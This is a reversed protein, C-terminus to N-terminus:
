AALDLPSGWLHPKLFAIGGTTNKMTPDEAFDADVYCRLILDGNFAPVIIGKDQTAALYRVIMKLATAHSKKPAYTFRAVQSVAFTIDPRTNGSLYLLMGVISRYNFKDNMPPGDLDKGLCTKLSPVKNPNCSEMGTAKIIKKILGSQTMHIAGNPLPNFSMGLYDQFTGERELDFGKKLLHNVLDGILQERQAGVGVDDVYVIIIMDHRFLLCPDNKSQTFGLEPSLLEGFLNEFWLRPAERLGYMSKLLLLLSHSRIDHYFGRPPHLYVAEMLKPFHTQCFANAFDLAVSPWKLLTCLAIFLRVSSFECVPAFM